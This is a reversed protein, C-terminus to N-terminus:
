TKRERFGLSLCVFGINEQLRHNIRDYVESAPNSGVLVVALTPTVDHQALEAITQKLDALIKKSVARGDLRTAM